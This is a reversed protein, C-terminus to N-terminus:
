QQELVMRREVTAEAVHVGDLEGVVVGFPVDDGARSFWIIHEHAMQVPRDGSGPTADREMDLTRQGMLDSEIEFGVAVNRPRVLSGVVSEHGHAVSVDDDM